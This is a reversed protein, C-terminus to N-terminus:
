NSEHLVEFSFVRTGPFGDDTLGNIVGIFKGKTDSTYFHLQTPASTSTNIEPQWYLCTRFDPLRNQSVSQDPYSPSYFEREIGTGELGFVFSTSDIEFDVFDKKFTNFNVIGKFAIPGKYYKRAVVELSRISRANGSLLKNYDFIPTGDVLVLADDLFFKEDDHNLAFIHLAKSIRRVIVDPVYERLVEEVTQFQVYDSLRYRSDPKGYFALSDRQLPKAAPTTAFQKTLQSYILRDYLTKGAVSPFSPTVQSDWPPRNDFQDDISIHLQQKPDPDIILLNSHNSFNSLYFEFKGLKNSKATYLKSDSGPFTALLPVDSMVRSSLKNTVIGSVTLGEYEPSLKVPQRNDLVDNWKFRRWGQTLMLNDAASAVEPASSSFYYDANEIYGKLDSALYLYSEIRKIDSTQLSDGRFVSLSLNAAIPKDAIRTALNLTVLSRSPYIRNSTEVTINLKNEPRKFFLRECVPSLDDDFITLHTIGDALKSKAIKFVTRNLVPQAASVVRTFQRTHAVLYLGISQRTGAYEVNIEISDKQADTLSMVYGENLPVQLPSTFDIGNAYILVRLSQGKEPRVSFSGMGYILSTFHTLTDNKENLLVGRCPIGRGADDTVKFGVKSTLSYVLNGGEPFLQVDITQKRSSKNQNEITEGPNAIMIQKQFFFDPSYNRMWRTYARLTYYGSNVSPIMLSGNGKGSRLEVKLQAVVANQRNFLEVYAIKNLDLPRHFTGDVCYVKFWLAEGAVYVDKDTHVFIKEQLNHTSYEDFTKQIELHPQLQANLLISHGAFIIFLLLTLKNM